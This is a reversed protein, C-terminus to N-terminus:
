RCPIEDDLQFSNLNNFISCEVGDVVGEDDDERGEVEDKDRRELLRLEVDDSLLSEKLWTSTIGLLGFDDLADIPAILCEDEFNFRDGVGTSM